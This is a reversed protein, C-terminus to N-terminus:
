VLTVPLKPFLPLVWFQNLRIQISIIRQYQNINVQHGFLNKKKTVIHRYNFFHTDTIIFSVEFMFASTWERQETLVSLSVSAFQSCGQGATTRSASGYRPALLGSDLTASTYWRTETALTRESWKGTLSRSRFVVTVLQPATLLFLLIYLVIFAIWQQFSPM